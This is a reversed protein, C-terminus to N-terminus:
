HQNKNKFNPLHKLIWFKFIFTLGKFELFFGGGINLLCSRWLAPVRVAKIDVSDSTCCSPHSLWVCSPFGARAYLIVCHRLCQRNASGYYAGKFILGLINSRSFYLGRPKDASNWTNVYFFEDELKASAFRLFLFFVLAMAIDQHCTKHRCRMSFQFKSCSRCKWKNVFFLTM